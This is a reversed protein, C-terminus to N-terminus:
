EQIKTINSLENRRKFLLILEKFMERYLELTYNATTEEAFESAKKKDNSFRKLVDAYVKNTYAPIGDLRGQIGKFVEKGKDDVYWLILNYFTRTSNIAKERQDPFYVPLVGKQTQVNYTGGKRMDKSWEVRCSEMSRLIIDKFTEPEKKSWADESGDYFETEERPM